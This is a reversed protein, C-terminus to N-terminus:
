VTESIEPPYLSLNTDFGTTPSIGSDKRWELGVSMSSSLNAGTSIQAAGEAKIEAQYGIHASTSIIVPVGGVIFTFVASPIVNPAVIAEETFGAELVKMKYAIQLDIYSSGTFQYSFYQLDGIEIDESLEQSGFDFAFTGDLGSGFKFSKWYVDGAKGEYLTKGSFDLDCSMIKQNIYATSKTGNKNFVEHYEGNDDIFGYAAPTIVRRGDISKTDTTPNTSLVFSTNRFLNSMNGQSTTMTVSTGSISVQDIVRIDFGYKAPLVIAQGKKIDAPVAGEYTVSLTGSDENYSSKQLVFTTVM